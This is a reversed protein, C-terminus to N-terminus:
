REQRQKSLGEAPGPDSQDPETQEPEDGPSQGLRKCITIAVSGTALPESHATCQEAAGCDVKPKGAVGKSM